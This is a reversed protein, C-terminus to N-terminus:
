LRIIVLCGSPEQSMATICTCSNVAVGRIVFGPCIVGVGGAFYFEISGFGPKSEQASGRPLTAFTRGMHKSPFRAEARRSRGAPSAAPKVDLTNGSFSPMVGLIEVPRRHRQIARRGGHRHAAVLGALFVPLSSTRRM